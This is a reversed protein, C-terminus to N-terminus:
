PVPVSGIRLSYQSSVLIGRLGIGTLRFRTMRDERVLGSPSPFVGIGAQFLLFRRPLLPFRCRRWSFPRKLWITLTQYSKNEWVM